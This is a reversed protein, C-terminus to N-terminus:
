PQDGQAFFQTTHKTIWDECAVRSPVFVTDGEHGLICRGFWTGFASTVEYAYVGPASDDRKACESDYLSQMFGAYSTMEQVMEYCGRGWKEVIVDYDLDRLGEMMFAGLLAINNERSM